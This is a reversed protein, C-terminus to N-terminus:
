GDAAAATDEVVDEEVLVRRTVARESVGIREGNGGQRGVGFGPGLAAEVGGDDMLVQHDAAGLDGDVSDVLGAVGNRDKAVVPPHEGALADCRACATTARTTSWRPRASVKWCRPCTCGSGGACDRRSATGVASRITPPARGPRWRGTRPGNRSTRAE